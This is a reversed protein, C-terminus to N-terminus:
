PRVSSGLRRGPARRRELASLDSSSRGGSRTALKASASTKTTATARAPSTGSPAERCPRPWGGRSGPPVLRDDEHVLLIPGHCPRRRRDPDLLEPGRPPGVPARAASPV